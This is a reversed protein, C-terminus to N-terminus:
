FYIKIELGGGTLSMGGFVLTSRWLGSSHVCLPSAVRASSIALFTTTAHQIIVMGSFWSLFALCTLAVQPRRHLIKTKILESAPLSNVKKKSQSRSQIQLESKDLLKKKLESAIFSKIKPRSCCEFTRLSGKGPQGRKACVQDPHSNRWQCKKCSM